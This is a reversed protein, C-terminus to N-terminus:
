KAPLAEGIKESHTKALLAEVISYATPTVIAALLCADSVM